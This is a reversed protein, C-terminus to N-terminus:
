QFDTAFPDIKVTCNVARSLRDVEPEADPAIDSRGLSEECFRDPTLPESRLCDRQVTVSRRVARHPFHLRVLKQGRVRCQSRRLIQVIQNLLIMAVDLGPDVCHEAEFAEAIRGNRYRADLQHM